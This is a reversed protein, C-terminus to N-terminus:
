KKGYTSDHDPPISLFKLVNGDRYATARRSQSIRLSYVAAVGPPLVARDIKEWKLGSDRYLQAWSMRRLKRMTEMASHRDTKELEFLNDQFKPNNLDLEITGYSDSQPM